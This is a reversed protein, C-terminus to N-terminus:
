QAVESSASQASLLTKREITKKKCNALFGIAFRVLQHLYEKAPLTVPLPARVHFQHFKEGDLVHKRRPDAPDIDKACVRPEDEVDLADVLIAGSVIHNDFADHHRDDRRAFDPIQRNM